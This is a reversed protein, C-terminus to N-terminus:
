CTCRCSVIYHTGPPVCAFSFRGTGDSKSACVFRYKGDVKGAALAAADVDAPLSLCGPISVSQQSYLLFLVDSISSGENKAFGQFASAM